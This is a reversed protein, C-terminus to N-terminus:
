ICALMHPPTPTRKGEIADGRWSWDIEADEKYAAAVAVDYTESSVLCIEYGDPDTAIAVALRGYEKDAGAPPPACLMPPLGRLRRLAPMENFERIPHLVGGGSGGKELQNYVARLARSPVRIANRGDWADVKVKPQAADEFVVLPVEEKGSAYGLAQVEAMGTRSLQLMPELDATLNRMCLMKEYFNTAKSASAVRVAVYLFREKRDAPQPLVRYRYEDPGTIMDGEVAYGMGKAASLAAEPDDMGICFHSLGTGAPYTPVGYNYTLELCYNEHEPGYGIMTKSWPTDFAGNCTIACPKDNEEHRLVKMGFVGRFFKWSKRLDGCRLVWHAPKSELVDSADEVVQVARAGAALACRAPQGRRRRLAPAAAAVGFLVLPVSCRDGLLHCQQWPRATSATSCSSSTRLLSPAATPSPPAFFHNLAM